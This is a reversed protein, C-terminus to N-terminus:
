KKDNYVVIRKIFIGLYLKIITLLKSYKMQHLSKNVFMHM